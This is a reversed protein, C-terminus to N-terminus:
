NGNEESTQQSSLTNPNEYKDGGEYANMDELDRVENPNMFRNAIAIGYSEYRTKLDARLLANMNFRTYYERANGLLKWNLEQEYMRVRPRVNHTVFHLSFNEINSYTPDNNALMFEPINFWRAVETVSFERSQLFQSQEPTITMYYPKLGEELVITSGEKMQKDFSEKLNKQGAPQLHGPHSLVVKNTMGDDFYQTGQTQLAKGFSLSENAWDIPSKGDVGAQVHIVDWMPARNIITRGENDRFTYWNRVGDFDVQVHQPYVFRLATPIGLKDRVIYSYANGYINRSFEMAKIWQSPTYLQSPSINLLYQVQQEYKPDSENVIRKEDAQQRYVNIPINLTDALINLASYVSSLTLANSTTVTTKGDGFTMNKLYWSNNLSERLEKVETKLEAFVSFPWIPM